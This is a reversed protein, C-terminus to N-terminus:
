HMARCSTRVLRCQGVGKLSGILGHLKGVKGSEGRVIITELCHDHDLHVHQSTVIEVEAHHQLELLRQVLQPRHHDYVIVIAGVVNGGGAVERELLGDRIMDRIAESRNRYGRGAIMRDFKAILGEEISVGFRVLRPRKEKKEAKTASV